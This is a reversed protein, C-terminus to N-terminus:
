AKHQYLLLVDYVVCSIICLLGVLFPRSREVLNLMLFLELSLNQRGSICQSCSSCFYGFLALKITVANFPKPFGRAFAVVDKKLQKTLAYM